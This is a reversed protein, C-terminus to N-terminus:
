YGDDLRDEQTQRYILYVIMGIILVTVIVLIVLLIRNITSLGGSSGSSSPPVLTPGLINNGDSPYPDPTATPPEPTPSDPILTNTPDPSSTVTPLNSDAFAGGLPILFLIATLSFVIIGWGVWRTSLPLTIKM